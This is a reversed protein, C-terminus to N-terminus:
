HQQKQSFKKANNNGNLEVKRSRLGDTVGEGGILVAGNTEHSVASTSQKKQKLQRKHRVYTQYYFNSFFFLM